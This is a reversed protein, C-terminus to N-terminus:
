DKSWFLRLKKCLDEVEEKEKRISESRASEIGLVSELYSENETILLRLAETQAAKTDRDRLCM